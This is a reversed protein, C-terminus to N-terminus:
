KEKESTFIRKKAVHNKEKLLKVLYKTLIFKITEMEQEFQRDTRPRGVMIVKSIHRDKYAELHQKERWYRRKRKNRACEKCKTDRRNGKKYFDAEPKKQRCSTCIKELANFSESTVLKGKLNEM